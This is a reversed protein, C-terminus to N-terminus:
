NYTRFLNLDVERYNKKLFDILDLYAKLFENKEGEVEKVLAVTLNYPIYRKEMHLYGRDDAQSFNAQDRNDVKTYGSIVGWLSDYSEIFKEFHSQLEGDNLPYLHPNDVLCAEFTDGVACLNLDVSGPLRDVFFRLQTFPVFRLFYNLYSVDNKRDKPSDFSSAVSKEHAAKISQLREVTYYNPKQDVESHHNACLLILNEYSNIGSDLDEHGRAGKKRRAIIHAMEGIHVDNDFLNKGCMSCRGAALGYLKKIEPNSISM